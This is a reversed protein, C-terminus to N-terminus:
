YFNRNSYIESIGHREKPNKCLFKEFILEDNLDKYKLTKNVIQNKNAFPFEKYFLLYLLIGLSWTQAKDPDLIDFEIYEPPCYDLTGLFTGNYDGNIIISGFDILKIHPVDKTWSIVINEDKIDGHYCNFDTYLYNCAEIVQNFILIAIPRTIIKDSAIISFLDCEGFMEMSIIYHLRTNYFEYFNIINDHKIKKLFYVELPENNEAIRSKLFYKKKIIKIACNKNNVLSEAKFVNANGGAGIKKIIKFNKKFERSNM